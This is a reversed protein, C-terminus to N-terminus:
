NLRGEEDINRAAQADRDAMNGCAPCAYTRDSLKLEKRVHGCRGCKKSSPFWKGTRILFGGNKRLKDYLLGTFRGWGNDSVSKGFSLSKKMAALDLDEISIIDYERALRASMQNLFDDRQHRAKAHLKAVKVLQRNYNSSGKVMHSLKRQERATKGELKRYPKPFRAPKGALCYVPRNGDKDTYLEPLSMDLGTHRLHSVDGTALFERIEPSVDQRRKKGYEFLLSFKWTGGPEHIVTCSKLKGGPRPKRHLKLRVPAELKPLKLMNGTLRITPNKGQYNCNTTYTDRGGHKKKFRPKGKEGSRYEAMARGFQLQANCLGLSDMEKLWGCGEQEKYHRPAHVLGKGAAEYHADCDAKM